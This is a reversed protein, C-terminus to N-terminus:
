AAGGAQHAARWLRGPESGVVPRWGLDIVLRTLSTAVLPGHRSNLHAWLDRGTAGPIVAADISEAAALWHRQEEKCRDVHLGDVDHSPCVPCRPYRQDTAPRTM